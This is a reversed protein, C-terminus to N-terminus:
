ARDAVVGVARLEDLFAAIDRELQEVSVDSFQPHLEAALSPADGHAELAEWVLSGIENLTILTQGAPDVLVACDDVVEYVVGDARRVATTV